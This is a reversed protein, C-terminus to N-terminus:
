RISGLARLEEIREPSLDVPALRAWYPPTVDLVARMSRVLEPQSRAINRHERPDSALNYLEETEGFASWILRWDGRQIM